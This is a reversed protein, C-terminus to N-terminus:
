LLIQRPFLSNEHSQQFVCFTHGISIDHMEMSITVHFIYSGIMVSLKFLKGMGAAHRYYINNSLFNDGRMYLDFVQMCWCIIFQKWPPEALVSKVTIAISHLFM